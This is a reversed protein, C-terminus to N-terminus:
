GGRGHDSARPSCPLIATLRYGGQRATPGAQLQGSAALVRERLGMLGRGNSLAQPRPAKASNTDNDIQIMLHQTHWALRLRCNADKGAHKLVNTLGEQVIRYATLDVSLDLEGPTGEIDATISMGIARVSDLLKPLEALGSQPVFGNSGAAYDTPGDQGLVNLLRRLEAMAQKGTTEINVLAQKVEALETDAIESAGGAQLVMV